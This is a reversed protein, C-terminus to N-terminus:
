QLHARESTGLTPRPRAQKRLRVRVPLGRRSRMTIVPVLEMRFDPPVALEVHQLLTALLLQAEMIAFHQGICIRPGGGFPFYAFRPLDKTSGDLFRKPRFREPEPFYRADRQLAYPATVLQAGKPIPYGGLEFPIVVERGFVPAPPYLRLAESITASLLPLRELDALSVAREGLVDDIEARVEGAIDAHRSLLYVVYQLVLATTEHGALLFTLAEDALERENLSLGGEDRAHALRALLYGQEGEVRARAVIKSVVDDLDRKAREFRRRKPTPLVRGLQGVASFMLSEFYPIAEEMAQAIRQAEDGPDFGLVTKGVVDLTLAMSDRDFARLEGDRYNAVHKQTSEVMAGAYSAIHKPAFPQASLKRRKRWPEGDTTLISHGVLPILLRTVRDKLCERHKGLLLQEVWSPDSVFYFAVPGFGVYALGFYERQLREYFALPDGAYAPLNGLLPVGRPGQPKLTM